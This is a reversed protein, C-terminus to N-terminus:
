KLAREVEGSLAGLPGLSEQGVWMDRLLATHVAQSCQPRPWSLSSEGELNCDLFGCLARGLQVLLVRLAVANLSLFPSGQRFFFDPYVEFRSRGETFM